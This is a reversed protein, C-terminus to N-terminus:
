PLLHRHMASLILEEHRFRASYIGPYTEPDFGPGGILFVLGERKVDDFFLLSTLGWADGSHGKGKWAVGDAVRDGIGPGSVDVFHQNGLGWANMSRRHGGFATEGNTGGADQHWAEGLM